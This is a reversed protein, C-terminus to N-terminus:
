QGVCEITNIWSRYTAHYSCVEEELRQKSPSTIWTQRRKASKGSVAYM